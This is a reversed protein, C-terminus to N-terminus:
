ENKEKDRTQKDYLKTVTNQKTKNAEQESDHLKQQQQMKKNQQGLM